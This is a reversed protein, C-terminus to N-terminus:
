SASQPTLELSRWVYWSAISRYPQWRQGLREVTKRDPLEPLGYLKRIGSRVGLDDVPLVDPRHLRFILMMQVTWRGIGKVQTLTQIIAEDDLTELEALTPLGALIKEALDKLYRIKPRSVGATRLDEDPTNLLDTASPFPQNPYLLLFRRHIAAAAKGSLQQYLISRALSALLDHEQDSEHVLQCPGVQEIVQGLIPDAQKLFDVAVAYQM